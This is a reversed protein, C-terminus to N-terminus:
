QESAPYRATSAFREVLEQHLLLDDIAGGLEINEIQDSPRHYDDSLYPGLVIESSFATSLFVAPVGEELLVWGDQRRVFQEAFDRNGLERGGQEMVDLIIPDLPTRGEGVFGVASGAPAVAATDFNFAAVITNLPIPPQEAFAKAGLLGAEEASTALVYVDRDHPGSANLRRTLELMVAIGSANDVAGNCILDGADAASCEGLHDWHGMLLIAGSGPVSGPLLGLVNSSAIERRNSMADISVTPELPGPSFADGRSEAVLADWHDAGNASQMAAHTVFATLRKEEESALIMRERGFARNIGAIADENEVVTIIAAPNAQFLRSRRRPSVGPEGLMVVVKGAISEPEISEAEYGVFIMQANDVLLRNASTFAAGSSGDLAISQDGINLSVQSDSPATSVLQVPARWASGPDNTGSTLGAAQMEEILFGVTLDEGLTGPERGGFEDSALVSIDRMLRAEIMDREAVPVTAIPMKACAGLAMCVVTLCLGRGISTM